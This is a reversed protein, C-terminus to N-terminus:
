SPDYRQRNKPMRARLITTWALDISYFGFFDDHLAHEPFGHNQPLPSLPSLPSLHCHRYYHYLLPPLPTHCHHYHSNSQKPKDASAHAKWNAKRQTHQKSLSFQLDPTTCVAGTGYIRFCLLSKFKLKPVTESAHGFSTTEVSEVDEITYARLKVCHTLNCSFQLSSHKLVFGISKWASPRRSYDTDPFRGSWHYKIFNNEDVADPILNEPKYKVFMAHFRLRNKEELAGSLINKKRFGKVTVV